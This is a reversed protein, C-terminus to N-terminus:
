RDHSKQPLLVNVFFIALILGGVLGGVISLFTGKVAFSIIAGFITGILIILGKANIEQSENVQNAM